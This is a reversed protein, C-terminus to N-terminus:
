AASEEGRAMRFAERLAERSYLGTRRFPNWIRGQQDPTMTARRVPGSRIAAGLLVLPLAAEEFWFWNSYVARSPGLLAMVLFPVVYLPVAVLFFATGIFFRRADGRTAFRPATVM